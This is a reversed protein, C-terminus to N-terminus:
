STLGTKNGSSLPPPPPSPLLGLPEQGLVGVSAGLFGIEM